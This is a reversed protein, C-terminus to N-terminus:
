HAGPPAARARSEAARAAEDRRDRATALNRLLVPDGPAARIAAEFQEIAADWRGLNSLLIGFGTLAAPSDPRLALAARYRAAALDYWGAANCSNALGLVAEFSGPDLALAQDFRLIAQRPQGSKLLQTGQNLHFRVIDPDVVTARDFARRAAASDGAATLATGYNLYNMADGPYDEVAKAWLSVEDRWVLNQRLTMGAFTLGTLAVAVGVARRGRGAHATALCIASTLAVTWGVSPFYLFREAFLKSVQPRLGPLYLAPAITLVFVALGLFAPRHRRWTLWALAATSLLVTSAVFGRSSIWAEPPVAFHGLSLHIPVFSTRVYRAFLDTAILLSGDFGPLDPRKHPALGGLAAMRLGLYLGLVAFWPATRVLLPRLGARPSGLGLLEYLVIVLPLAVAPEKALLALFFAALGFALQARGRATGCSRRYLEFALLAFATSAVDMIGSIWAVAEVHVPHVAFILAGSLAAPAIYPQEEPPRNRLLDFLLRLVLVSTLAHLFLNVLRYAWPTDGAVGHVLVFIVRALPRFYNTEGRGDRSWLDTAFFSGVNSPDRISANMRVLANDDYVFAGSIANFYVAAAVLAVLLGLQFRRSRM